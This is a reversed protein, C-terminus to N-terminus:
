SKRPYFGEMNYKGEDFDDEGGKELIRNTGIIGIMCPREEDRVVYVNLDENKVDTIEAVEQIGLKLLDLSPNEVPVSTTGLFKDAVCHGSKDVAFTPVFMTFGDEGKLLPCRWGKLSEAVWDEKTFTIEMIQM